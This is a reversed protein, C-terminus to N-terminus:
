LTRLVLPFLSNESYKFMTSPSGATQLVSYEMIGSVPDANIFKISPNDFRLLVMKAMTKSQAVSNRYPTSRGTTLAAKCLVYESYRYRSWELVGPDYL